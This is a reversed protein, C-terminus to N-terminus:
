RSLVCRFLLAANCFILVIPFIPSVKEFHPERYPQEGQHHGERTLLDGRIALSSLTENATFEAGGDSLTRGAIFPILSPKNPSAPEPISRRGSNNSRNIDRFSVSKDNRVSLTPYAPRAGGGTLLDDVFEEAM